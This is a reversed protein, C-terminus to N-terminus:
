GGEANRVRFAVEGASGTRLCTSWVRRTEEQDDPHLFPIHSDWEGDLVAGFRLPHDHPLGGYDANHSNVFALGGSATALWVHAPIVNAIARLQATISSQESSVLGEKM